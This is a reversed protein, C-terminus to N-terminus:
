LQVKTANPISATDGFKPKPYLPYGSWATPTTIGMFM